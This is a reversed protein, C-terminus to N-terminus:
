LFHNNYELKNAAPPESHVPVFKKSQIIELGASIISGPKKKRERTKAPLSQSMRPTGTAISVEFGRSQM